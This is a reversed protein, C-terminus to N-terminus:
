SERGNFRCLSSDIGKNLFFIKKKLNMEGSTDSGKLIEENIKGFLQLIVVSNMKRSKERQSYLNDAEGM